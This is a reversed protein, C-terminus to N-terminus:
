LVKPSTGVVFIFITMLCFLSMLLFVHFGSVHLEQQTLDLLKNTLDLSENM